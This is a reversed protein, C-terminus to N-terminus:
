AIRLLIHVGSDTDVMGSMQGVGLAFSADEFPKQMAGRGFMGLDGGNKASSCDSNQSALQAFDEGKTIRDHFAMLTAIAEEKTRKTIQVGDPDRWSAPRRSGQHKVLLHAVRVESMTCLTLRQLAVSVGGQLEAQL